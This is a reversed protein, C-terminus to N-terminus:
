VAGARNGSGGTALVSLSLARARALSRSRSCSRSLSRSPHLSLPSSACPPPDAAPLRCVCEAPLQSSPAPLEVMIIAAGDEARCGELRVHQVHLAGM